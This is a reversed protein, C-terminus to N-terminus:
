GLTYVGMQVSVIGWMKMDVAIQKLLEALRGSFMEVHTVESLLGQVANIRLKLTCCFSVTLPFHPSFFSPSICSLPASQLFCCYFFLGLNLLSVAALRCCGSDREDEYCNTQCGDFPTTVFGSLYCLTAVTM